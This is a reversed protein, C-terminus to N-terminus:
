TIIITKQPTRKRARKRATTFSSSLSARNADCETSTGPRPQELNDTPPDNLSVGNINNTGSDPLLRSESPNDSNHINTSSSRKKILLQPNRQLFGALWDKGAMKSIKCFRNPVKMREAFDFALRRVEISTLDFLAEEMGLIHSAIMAELEENFDPRFRGLLVAGPNKVKGDRHRRLTKCPIGYTRSVTKLPTGEHIIAHLADRLANEGYSARATKRKYDRPM